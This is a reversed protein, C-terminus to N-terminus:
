GPDPGIYRVFQTYGYPDAAAQPPALSVLEFRSLRALFMFHEIANVRRLTKVAYTGGLRLAPFFGYVEGVGLAGHAAIAAALFTREEPTYESRLIGVFNSVSFNESFPLGTKADHWSSEPPNFVQGFLLEVNVKRRRRHWVKLSGFATYAVVTMEAPDFEPDDKFILQLLPDFPAPDCIWYMGDLYAGRGHEVWFRILAEPVRDAYSAAAATTMRSAHKPEGLRQIMHAFVETEGAATGQALAGATGRRLEAALGVFAVSRLFTRRTVFAVSM